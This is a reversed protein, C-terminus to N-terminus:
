ETVPEGSNQLSRVGSIFQGCYRTDICRGAKENVKEHAEKRSAAKVEITYQVRKVVTYIKDEEM